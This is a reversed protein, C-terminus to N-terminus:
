HPLCTCGRDLSTVLYALSAPNCSDITDNFVLMHGDFLEDCLMDRLDARNDCLTSGDALILAYGVNNNHLDMDKADQCDTQCEHADGFLKALDHGCDCSNIANFLAHRYADSCTNVSNVGMKHKTWINADIWNIAILLACGPHGHALSRECNNMQSYPNNDIFGFDYGGLRSLFNEVFCGDYDAIGACLNSTVVDNVANLKPCAGGPFGDQVLFNFLELSINQFNNLDYGVLGCGYTLFAQKVKEQDTFNEPQVHTDYLTRFVCIPDACAYCTYNCADLSSEVMSEYTTPSSVNAWGILNIYRRVTSAKDYVCRPIAVVKIPISAPPFSETFKLTLESEAATVTAKHELRKSVLDTDKENKEILDAFTYISQIEPAVKLNYDAKRSFVM